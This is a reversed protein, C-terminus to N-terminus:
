FERPANCNGMFGLNIRLNLFGLCHFCQIHVFGDALWLLGNRSTEPASISCNRNSELFRRWFDTDYMRHWIRCRTDYRRAHTQRWIKVPAPKQLWISVARNRRWFGAPIAKESQSVSKNVNLAEVTQSIKIQPDVQSKVSIAVCRPLKLPVILLLVSM